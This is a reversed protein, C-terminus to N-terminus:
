QSSSSAFIIAEGSFVTRNPIRRPESASSRSTVGTRASRLLSKPSGSTTPRAPQLRCNWSGSIPTV